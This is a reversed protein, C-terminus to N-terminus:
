RPSRTTSSRNGGPVADGLARPAAILREIAGAQEPTLPFNTGIHRKVWPHKEMEPLGYIEARAVPADLLRAMKLRVRLPTKKGEDAVLPKVAYRRQWDDPAIVDPYTQVTATAYLGPSRRGCFCLFVTDGPTIEAAHQTALFVVMNDHLQAEKLAGPLDFYEPNSQFIWHAM